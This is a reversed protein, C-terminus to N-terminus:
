AAAFAPTAQFLNLAKVDAVLKARTEKATAILFNQRYRQCAVQQDLRYLGIDLKFNLGVVSTNYWSHITVPTHDAKKAPTIM